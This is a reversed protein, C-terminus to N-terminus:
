RNGDLSNIIQANKWQPGSAGNGVNPASGLGERGEGWYDGMIDAM